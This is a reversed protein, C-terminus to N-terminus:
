GRRSTTLYMGIDDSSSASTPISNEEGGNSSSSDETTSPPTTDNDKKKVKKSVVEWKGDTEEGAFEEAVPTRDDSEASSAADRMERRRQRALKRQIERGSQTSGTTLDVDRLGAFRNATSM